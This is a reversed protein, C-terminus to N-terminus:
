LALANSWALHLEANTESTNKKNKLKEDIADLSDNSDLHFFRSVEFPELFRTKGTNLVLRQESLSSTLRRVMIRADTFSDVALNQDDMWRVYREKGIASTVRRDHEFLFIHALARSCDHQDVPLGVRPTSSHGSAPKFRELLRGLLGTAKRSLGLPSLHELLLEHQISEFYNTVDTIVLVRGITNLLTKTRYQHYRIWLQWGDEYDLGIYAKMEPGVPVTPQGQAFFVGSPEDRQARRYIDDVLHRYVLADEATLVTMVRFAGREKALEFTGPEAPVYSGGIISKRLLKIREEAFLDFELYDLCDRADSKKLGKRIAKWTTKLRRTQWLAEFDKDQKIM